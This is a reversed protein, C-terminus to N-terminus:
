RLLDLAKEIEVKLTELEEVTNYLGVSLRATATAGLKKHLPQTCHHGARLAIKQQGLIDTLDHPHAGETVFSICCSTDKSDKPGFITLGEISSLVTLADKILAEEHAEREEQAYQDLWDMAAALGIAQAIPPTGAEFKGPPEASSFGEKKVEQIMMGGGLFPPMKEMLERKAYLVGVGTPGYLKHGSFTLFDCDLTQVDVSHHAILQAADVLVLAGADHAKGIITHLDPRTGLVNSQGTIAVLKTKGAALIQDLSEMQVRGTDDIEIWEVSTDKREALQHWPVINSHHELLSLAVTEGSQLVDDGWARAVLNIAETCNKTFVIERTYKAGIFKGVTKRAEEYRLTARETLAHMGRHVNACYTRYYEDMADIVANPTQATAASDFYIPAQEGAFVSFQQRLTQVDLAMSALGLMNQM